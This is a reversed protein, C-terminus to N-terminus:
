RGHKERFFHRVMWDNALDNLQPDITRFEGEMTPEGDFSIVFYMEPQPSLSSLTFTVCETMMRDNTHHSVETIKVKYSSGHDLTVVGDVPSLIDEQIVVPWARGFHKSCSFSPPTLGSATRERAPVNSHVTRVLIPVKPGNPGRSETVGDSANEGNSRTASADKPTIKGEQGASKARLHPKIAAYFEEDSLM